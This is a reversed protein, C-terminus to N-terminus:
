PLLTAGYDQAGHLIHLVIVQEREIRYFILYNGHVRRRVGQAEFRAVLPFRDPLEALTLCKERLESIFGIARVPDDLAIYDGIAELDREAEETITVIM